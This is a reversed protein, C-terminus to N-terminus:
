GAQEAAVAARQWTGADKALARLLDVEQWRHCAAKHGPGVDILPPEQM